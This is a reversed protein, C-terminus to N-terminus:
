NGSRKLQRRNTLSRNSRDKKRELMNEKREMFQQRVSRFRALQEPTLNKRVALETLSRLRIVDAQATQVEKLRAQIEADDAIDAYIAQDLNRNAERLRDQAARLQPRREQNIQRIKKIQDQSLGLQRMLNPRMQANMDRNPANLPM